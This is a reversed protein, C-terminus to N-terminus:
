KVTVWFRVADVGAVLAYAVAPTANRAQEPDFIAKYAPTLIARDAEPRKVTLASLSTVVVGM